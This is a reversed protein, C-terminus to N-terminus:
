LGYVESPSMLYKQNFDKKLRRESRRISGPELAEKIQHWILFETAARTYWLTNFPVQSKAIDVGDSVLGTYDTKEGVSSNYVQKATKGALNAIGAATTVTPGAFTAIFDAGTRALSGQVFDGMIGLGGGQFAAQLWTQKLTPDKPELGKSLDKAVMSIYGLMVGAVAQHIVGGYDVSDKSINFRRGEITRDWYAFAFSKFQTMLRAAEGTITGSKTGFSTIRKTKLDPELVANKTEEIFFTRLNNELEFKARELHFERYEGWNKLKSELAKEEMAIADGQDAPNDFKGPDIEKAKPKNGERFEEPIFDELLSKEVKQVLDPHYYKVGDVDEPSISRLLDWKKKDISGYQQLAEKYGAPLKDFDVDVLEGLDKSMALAFGSKAKTTHLEQGSIKFLIDNMRGLKNNINDADFRNYNKFNITDAMVGLRDLVRQKEPTMSSFYHKMTDVWAGAFNNGRVVRHENVLNLFDSFQSLTAAGLKAVSNVSRVTQAFQKMRPAEFSNGEGMMFMFSKGIAGERNILKNKDGLNELLKVRDADPLDKYIKKDRISQRINEIASAVTTDPNPGLREMLAIKRSTIDMHRSMTELINSGQGFEKLYNLEGASDKFHLVRSEGLKKAINRPSKVLSATGDIQGREGRVGTIINQYTEYLAKDLAAEDKIKPFTKELDLSGKMYEIWAKEGKLILKDADHTRPIWGDLKGINAGSLNLRQRASEAHDSLIKAVQVAVNDGSVGVNGKGDSRIQLMETIVNENFKVDDMFLKEIRPDIEKLESHLKSLSSQSLSHYTGWVSDGAGHQGRLRSDGELQSLIAQEPNAGADILSLAQNHVKEKALKSLYVQRKKEKAEIALQIRKEEIAKQIAFENIGSGGEAAVKEEAIERVEKALRDFEKKSIGVQKALQELETKKSPESQFLTLYEQIADLSDEEAKIESLHENLLHIEELDVNSTLGSEQHKLAIEDIAKDLDAETKFLPEPLAPPEIPDFRPQGEGGLLRGYVERADDSLKVNLQESSKYISTLWNKFKQFANELEPRPAVGERLYQEFGRAFKEHHEVGIKDKVGLWKKMIEFDRKMGPSANEMASFQELNRLFIHGTEHFITSKDAKEFLSVIAKGDDKFTVAGKVGQYHESADKVSNIKNQFDSLSMSSLPSEALPSSGDSGVGKATSTAGRERKIEEIKLNYLENNKLRDVQLQVAYEKGNVQAISHYYDFERGKGKADLSSELFVAKDIVDDIGDLIKSLTKAQHESKVMKKSIESGLKGRTSENIQIEVGSHANIVSRDQLKDAVIISVNGRLNEKIPKNIVVQDVTEPLPISTQQTQIGLERRQRPSLRGQIDAQGYHGAQDSFQSIGFKEIFEDITLGLDSAYAQAHAVMPTIATQADEPSYKFDNVLQDQLIQVKESRQIEPLDWLNKVATDLGEVNNLNPNEGRQIAEISHDLASSLAVRDSANVSARANRSEILKSFGHGAASFAGGLVGGIVLDNAYDQWTSEVGRDQWYPRTISSVAINSLAGEAVGRGVTAALTAGKVAGGAFPILNIPDAISGVIQGAFGMGTRVVGKGGAEITAARFQRDDFSQALYKARDESYGDQFAVGERFYPSQKWQDVTMTNTKKVTVPTLEKPQRGEKYAAMNENHQDLPTPISTELDQSREKTYDYAVGLSTNDFGDKVNAMFYEMGTPEGESLSEALDKQDMEPLTLM